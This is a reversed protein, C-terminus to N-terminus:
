RRSSQHRLATLRIMWNTKGTAFMVVRGAVILIQLVLALLFALALRRM